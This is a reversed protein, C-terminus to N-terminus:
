DGNVNFQWCGIDIWKEHKFGVEKFHAVKEFGLKEHMAVSGDNPLSIVGIIRHIGKDKLLEILHTYLKTGIRRDRYDKDVYVTTEVTYRYASKERWDAAYAYGVVRGDIEYVIWNNEKMLPSIKSKMEEVTAPTEAFTIVTNRVYHNYINCIAEADGLDVYRIM